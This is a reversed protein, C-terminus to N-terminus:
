LLVCMGFRILSVLIIVYFVCSAPVVATHDAHRFDFHNIKFIIPLKNIPMFIGDSDYNKILKKSFLFFKHFYM